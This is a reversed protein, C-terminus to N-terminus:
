CHNTIKYIEYILLELPSFAGEYHLQWLDHVTKRLNPVSCIATSGGLCMHAPSDLSLAWEDATTYARIRCVSPWKGEADGAERETNEREKSLSREWMVEVTGGM